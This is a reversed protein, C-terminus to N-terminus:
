MKISAFLFNFLACLIGNRILWTADQCLTQGEAIEGSDTKQLLTMQTLKRVQQCNQSPLPNLPQLTTGKQRINM